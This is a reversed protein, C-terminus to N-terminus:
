RVPRLRTYAPPAYRLSPAQGFGIAAWAFISAEPRRTMAEVPAFQGRIANICDVNAPKETVRRITPLLDRVFRQSWALCLSCALGRAHRGSPDCHTSRMTAYQIRIRWM